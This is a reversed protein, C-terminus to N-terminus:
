LEGNLSWSFIEIDSLPHKVVGMGAAVRDDNIVLLDSFGRENPDLSNAFSITHHSNLWGHDAHGREDAKRHTLM